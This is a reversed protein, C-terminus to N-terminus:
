SLGIASKVEGSTSCYPAGGATLQQVARVSTWPRLGGVLGPEGPDAVPQALVWLVARAEGQEARLTPTGLGLGLALRLREADALDMEGSFEGVALERTIRQGLSVACV